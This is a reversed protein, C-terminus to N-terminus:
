ARNNKIPAAPYYYEYRLARLQQDRDFWVELIVSESESAGPLSARPLLLSVLAISYYRNVNHVLTPLQLRIVLCAEKM